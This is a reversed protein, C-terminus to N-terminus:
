FWYHVKVPVCFRFYALALTLALVLCCKGVEELCDLFFILVNSSMLDTEADLWIEADLLGHNLYIYTYIFNHRPVSRLLFLETPLVM